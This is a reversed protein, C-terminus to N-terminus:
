GAVSAGAVQRARPACPLTAAVTTGDPGSTLALEGGSLEVRERIGSLGFGTSRMGPDFGGGDDRVRLRLEDGDRTLEIMIHGAGAHKIANTLAEQIVRYVTAEIDRDIADNSRVGRPIRMAASIEAGTTRRARHVLADIAAALGIEDLAPPRLDTIIARLNAIEQQIQDMLAEGTSRWFALDDKRHAAALQLRLGGLAQLTQDHLERAARRREAEIAEFTRRLRDREVSQATAVATAASAAAALLLREDELRFEPGDVRDFADIVGVNAGRFQLPVFIGARAEVGHQSLSFRLHSSLDSVRQARGSELVSAAISRSRAIKTGVIEQPIQGAVAAVVFDDGDVLLIAVSAADVLARSRKAILELVRSLDTEGGIARAIELTAALAGVSRELEVRREDTQRYLRANEVAIGAWAALVVAADEDDADFADRGAKDTLYLNGWAEGRIMIPVGLFSSMPPHGAPFGYSHSHAGVERLRLPQPDEILLGLVGRGRPLQGIVSHTEPAIGATIFDALGERREDLVGIAAYGAGTLDRAVDLLRAFVGNVDREAVLIRGADILRRLRDEGLM